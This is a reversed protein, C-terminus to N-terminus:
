ENERDNQIQKKASNFGIKSLIVEYVTIALALYQIAKIIWDMVDPNQMAVQYIGVGIAALVFTLIHVGTDGFKPFVYKKILQTLLVVGFFIVVEFM